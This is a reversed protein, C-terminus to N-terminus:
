SATGTGVREAGTACLSSTADAAVGGVPRRVSVAALIPSAPPMHSLALEQAETADRLNPVDLRSSSTDCSSGTVPWGAQNAAFEDCVPAEALLKEDVLGPYVDTVVSNPTLHEATPWGEPLDLVHVESPSEGVNFHPVVTAMSVPTLLDVASRDRSPAQSVESDRRSGSKVTDISMPTLLTFVSQQRYSPLATSLESGPGSGLRPSGQITDLSVPTM